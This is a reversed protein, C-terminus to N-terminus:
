ILTARFNIWELWGEQNTNNTATPPKNSSPVATRNVAASSSTAANHLPKRSHLLAARARRQAPPTGGPSDPLDSPSVRGSTARSFDCSSYGDKCSAKIPFLVQKRAM